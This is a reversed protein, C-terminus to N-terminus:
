AAASELVLSANNGGFAYANVMVRERALPVEAEVPVWVKCEPDQEDLPVNPPVVGRQLILAGALAALAGAAGGTHGILAKLSYLPVDTCRAGFVEQLAHSEVVDNLATGTGHPIVCGVSDPSAEAERLAQRMARVIQQGTPEPATSHYADCSWGSGTLRAYVTPVQRKLAHSESELVLLGAGEGFITGRRHLDFPRCRVPDIAGMRNFCGLGVRSYEEAGGAVVVDAEGCRIIDSAVALAFSGASCANSISSNVGRAGLWDGVASAVVFASAWRQGSSVADVRWRERPSFDGMGTGIVVGLRSPPLDPLAADAVAQRAAEVALRSARALPAGDLHDPEAPVDTDPVGYLLSLEMNAHPDPAQEPRSSAAHLGRWFVDTGSGLCSVVGLGTILVREM